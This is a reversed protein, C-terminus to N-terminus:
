RQGMRKIGEIVKEGEGKKLMLIPMQGNFPQNNNKMRMFGFINEKNSFIKELEEHIELIQHEPINSSIAEECKWKSLIENAKM